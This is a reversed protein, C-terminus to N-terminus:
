EEQSKNNKRRTFNKNTEEKQRQKKPGKKAQAALKKFKNHKLQFLKNNM